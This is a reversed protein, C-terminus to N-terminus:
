ITAIWSDNPYNLIHPIPVGRVFSDGITREALSSYQGANDPGNALINLAEHVSNALGRDYNLITPGVYDQVCYAIAGKDTKEIMVQAAPIGDFGVYRALEYAVRNGLFHPMGKGVFTRIVLRRRKGMRPIWGIFPYIKVDFNFSAKWGWVQDSRHVYAARGCELSPQCGPNNLIGAPHTFRFNKKLQLM